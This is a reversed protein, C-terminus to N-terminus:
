DIAVNGNKIVRAWKKIEADQFSALQEPSGAV